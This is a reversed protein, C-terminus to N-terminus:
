RASSALASLRELCFVLGKSWRSSDADAAASYRTPSAESPPILVAAQLQVLHRQTAGKFNAASTSSGSALRMPAGAEERAASRLVRWFRIGPKLVMAHWPVGSGSM